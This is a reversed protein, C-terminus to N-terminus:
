RDANENVGANLQKKMKDRALLAKSYHDPSNLKLYNIDPNLSEWSERLKDYSKCKNLENEIDILTSSVKNLRSEQREKELIEAKIKKDEYSNEQAIAGDDDEQCVIGFISSLSYRKAYSLHSGFNQPASTNCSLPYYMKLWENKHYLTTILYIANDIPQTIQTYALEAESEEIGLKIAKTISAQSAYKYQYKGGSKMVVSAEGDLEAPKIKSQAKALEATINAISESNIPFNTM